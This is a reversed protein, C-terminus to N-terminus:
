KWSQSSYSVSQFQRMWGFDLPGSRTIPSMPESSLRAPNTNQPPSIPPM